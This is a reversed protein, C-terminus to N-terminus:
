APHAVLLPRLNGIDDPTVGAAKILYEEVSGWREDIHRLASVLAPPHAGHVRGFEAEDGGAARLAPRYPERRWEPTGERSALYDKLVDTEDVGLVRLILAALVGTRDKGAACHILAPLGSSRALGSIVTGFGQAYLETMRVYSEVKAEAYRAVCDRDEGAMVPDSLVDAPSGAGWMPVRHVTIGPGIAGPAQIAVEEKDRRLDYIGAIRLDALHQWGAPTLNDLHGSRYLLGARVRGDNATPWGGLDRFNFAGDPIHISMQRMAPVCNAHPCVLRYLEYLPKKCDRTPYLNVWPLGRFYPVEPGAGCRVGTVYLIQGTMAGARPDALFAVAVAIEEPRGIRGM